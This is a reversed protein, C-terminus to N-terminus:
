RDSPAYVDRVKGRHILQLGPLDSQSLITPM